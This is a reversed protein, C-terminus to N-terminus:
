ILSGGLYTSGCRSQAVISILSKLIKPVKGLGNVMLIHDITYRSLNNGGSVLRERRALSPWHENSLACYICRPLGCRMVLAKPYVM